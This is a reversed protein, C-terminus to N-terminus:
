FVYIIIVEFRYVCIFNVEKCQVGSSIKSILYRIHYQKNRKHVHEYFFIVNTYMLYKM